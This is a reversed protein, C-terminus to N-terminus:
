RESQTTLLPLDPVQEGYAPYVIRAPAAVSTPQKAAAAPVIKTPPQEGYAPFTYGASRASKVFDGEPLTKQKPESSPKKTPEVQPVRNKPDGNYPFTANEDAPLILGKGYPNFNAPLPYGNSYPGAGISYGCPYTM